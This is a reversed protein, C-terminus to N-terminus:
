GRKGAKPSTSMVPQRWPNYPKECLEKLGCVRQKFSRIFVPAAREAKAPPLISLALSLLLLLLQLLLLLLLLGVLVPPHVGGHRRLGRSTGGRDRNEGNGNRSLNDAEARDAERDGPTALGLIGM